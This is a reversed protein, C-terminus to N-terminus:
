IGFPYTEPIELKDPQIHLPHLAITEDIFIFADYRFPIISKVYNAAREYEPRYVVGIARHDFPVELASEKLQNMILLCSHSAGQHLIHEWSDQKGEPVMMKKMDDGWYEGAIVGGKYTGLGILVTDNYKKRSLEGINYMGKDAMETASANGIHTNHAWVIAKSRPGHFLLLRELTDQMHSDRVNWSHADGKLMTRYYKEANVAVLANQEMNFAQEVDGDYRPMKEHITALLRLMEPECSESVSRSARAYRGEDKKYPEFCNFAERAVALADPDNKELYQMILEVSEWLSYVDLGYFGIKSETSIAQNYKRLWDAFAVIEWNAWMWTPWRNFRKLVDVANIETGYQKIYRNLAYCDPWDGEVAIFNFGKEDILRRSIRARWTYFEHTGHSAEGLMVIRADGIREMLPDLDKDYKLEHCASKVQKINYDNPVAEAENKQARKMLMM